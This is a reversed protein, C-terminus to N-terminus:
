NKEDKEKEKEAFNAEDSAGQIIDAFLPDLDTLLKVVNERNFELKKGKEDKVDDWGVVVHDAYLEAMLRTREKELIEVAADSLKGEAALRQRREFPKFKTQVANVFTRNQNGGYKVYIKFSGYDLARPENNVKLKEKPKFVEYPSTM